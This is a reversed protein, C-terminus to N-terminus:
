EAPVDTNAASCPDNAIDTDICGKGVEEDVITRSGVIKTDFFAPVSM